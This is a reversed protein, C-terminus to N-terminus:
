RTLRAIALSFAGRGVYKATVRGTRDVLLVVPLAHAGGGLALDRTAPFCAQAPIGLQAARPEGDPDVFWWRPRHGAKRATEHLAGWGRLEALSVPDKTSFLVVMGANRVEVPWKDGERLGPAPPESARGGFRGRAPEVTEITGDEAITVVGGAAAFEHRAGSPWRVAIRDAKPFWLEPPNGTQYATGCVMEKTRDGVTVRAGIGFRNRRGRLRVVIGPSASENRLAVIPTRLGYNHLVIDEDGDGDFDAVLFGRGDEARGLDPVDGGLFVNRQGGDFSFPPLLKTLAGHEQMAAQLDPRNRAQEVLRTYRDRFEQANRDRLYLWVPASGDQPSVGTVYGTTVYVGTELPQAGWAWGADVDQAAFAPGRNLLVRSGMEPLIRTGSVSARGAVFLDLRGDGDFDLWTVGGGCRSAPLGEMASFTGRENRYIRAPEFENAVALDPDGDDDCDGFAAGLTWGRDAVGRAIADDTFRGAGDNIWLRNPLGTHLGDRRPLPYIGASEAEGPARYMGAYVDLDGDGDVDAAALAMVPGSDKLGAEDTVDRFGGKGDNLFLALARTSLHGILLDLDGDGDADLFLATSAIGTKAFPAQRFKGGDNLFLHNGEICPLFIDLDRDADVDGAAIGGLYPIPETSYLVEGVQYRGRDLGSSETVDAFRPPRASRRSERKELREIRWRGDPDRSWEAEHVERLALAKGEEIADIEVEITGRMRAADGRADLVRISCRSVPGAPPVIKTDSAHHRIQVALELLSAEIEFIYDEIASESPLHVPPEDKRAEPESHPAPRRGGRGFFLLAGGVLLFVVVSLVAPHVRPKLRHGRLGQGGRSEM